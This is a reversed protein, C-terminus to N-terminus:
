FCVFNRIWHYFMEKKDVSQSILRGCLGRCSHRDNAPPTWSKGLCAASSLHEVRTLEQNGSYLLFKSSHLQKSLYAKKVLTRFAQQSLCKLKKQGSCLNCLFLFFKCKSRSKTNVPFMVCPKLPQYM